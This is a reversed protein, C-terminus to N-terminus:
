SSWDSGIFTYKQHSIVLSSASISRTYVAQNKSWIAGNLQKMKKLIKEPSAGSGWGVAPSVGGTGEGKRGRSGAGPQIRSVGSCRLNVDTIVGQLFIYPSVWGGGGGGGGGGRRFFVETNVHRPFNFVTPYRKISTSLIRPKKVEAYETNFSNRVYIGCSM